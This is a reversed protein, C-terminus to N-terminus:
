YLGEVEDELQRVFSIMYDRMPLAFTRATDTYLNDYCSIHFNIHDIVTSGVGKGEQFRQTFDRASLSWTEGKINNPSYETANYQSACARMIGVAGFLDLMDADRLIDALTDGPKLSSHIAIAEAIIRIEESSFLNNESLFQAAKEAGVEAHVRRDTVFCLGIDHLLATAEVIDGSLCSEEKAIKVAWSRVRTIHSLGHAILLTSKRSTVFLNQVYDEIITIPTSSM